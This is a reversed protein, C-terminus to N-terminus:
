ALVIQVGIWVLKVQKGIVNRVRYEVSADFGMFSVPRGNEVDHGARPLNVRAPKHGTAFDTRHEAGGGRYLVPELILNPHPL